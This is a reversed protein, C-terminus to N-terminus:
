VRPKRKTNGREEEGVPEVVIIEQTSEPKCTALYKDIERKALSATTFEGQLPVPIEGNTGEYAIVRNASANAMKIVFNRDSSM